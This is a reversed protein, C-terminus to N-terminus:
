IVTSKKTRKDFKEYWFTYRELEYGDQEREQLREHQSINCRSCSYKRYTEKLGREIDYEMNYETNIFDHQGNKTKNCRPETITDNKIEFANCHVGNCDMTQATRNGRVSPDALGMLRECDGIHLIGTLTQYKQKHFQIDAVQREEHDLKVPIFYSPGEIIRDTLKTSM